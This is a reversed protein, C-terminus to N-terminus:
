EGGFIVQGPHVPWMDERDSGEVFVVYGQRCVPCEATPGGGEISTRIRARTSCRCRKDTYWWDGEQFQPHMGLFYVAM